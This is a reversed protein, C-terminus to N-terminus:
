AEEGTLPYGAQRWGAYGDEFDIVNTYGLEELTRAATPSADCDANACYVVIPADKNPVLREVEEIDDTPVNISGPIHKAEHAERPLTNILVPPHEGELADKLDDTSITTLTTSM